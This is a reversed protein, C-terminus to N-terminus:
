VCFLEDRADSTNLLCVTSEDNKDNQKKHELDWHYYIEPYLIIPQLHLSTPRKPPYTKTPKRQPPILT